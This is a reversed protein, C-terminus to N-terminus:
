QRQGWFREDVWTVLGTMAKAVEVMEHLDKNMETNNKNVVGQVSSSKLTVVEAILKDLEAAAKM